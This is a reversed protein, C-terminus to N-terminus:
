SAIPRPASRPLLQLSTWASGTIPTSEQGAHARTRSVRGPIVCPHARPPHRPKWPRHLARPLPSVGRPAAGVCRDSPARIACAAVTLGHCAPGFVYPRALSGPSSFCRLVGLFLSSARLLPSRFARLGFWLRETAQRGIRRHPLVASMPSAAATGPSNGVVINASRWQFPRGSRTLAGYACADHSTPPAHTRRLVHFETPLLSSWTGLSFVRSSRYRLTGRPFPSFCGPLPSHFLAQFRAGATRRLGQPPSPTSKTSRVPSLDRAALSLCRCGSGCRLRTRLPRRTARPLGSVPHAVWPWPSAATLPPPPGCRHGNCLARILQPYPHFAL